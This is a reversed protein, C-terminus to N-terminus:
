HSPRQPRKIPAAGPRRGQAVITYPVRLTPMEKDDTEILVTGHTNGTLPTQPLEATVRYHQGQKLAAVTPSLLNRDDRASLIKFRSTGRGLVDFRLQAPPAGALSRVHARPPRAYVNGVLNARVNLRLSSVKPDDTRVLAASNLQRGLVADAGVTATIAVFRRGDRQSPAMKLSIGPVAGIDVLKVSDALKGTVELTREVSDGRGLEGLSLVSPVLTLLTEIEASVRLTTRPAAPDNSPVNISKTIRGHKGRTNFKVEIKGEGGPPIRRETLL